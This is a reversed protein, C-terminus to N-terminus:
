AVGIEQAPATAGPKKSLTVVLVGDAYRASIGTQDVKDSLMFRREFSAKQYEQRVWKPDPAQASEPTQYAIVLVDDSVSIKFDERTLGPAFVHLEFRDESEFVNVPIQNTFHRAFKQGWHRGFRGGGCGHGAHQFAGRTHEDFFQNSYHM